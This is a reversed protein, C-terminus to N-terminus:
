LSLNPTISLPVKIADVSDPSPFRIYSIAVRDDRDSQVDLIQAQPKEGCLVDDLLARTLRDPIDPDSLNFRQPKFKSYDRPDKVEFSGDPHIKVFRGADVLNIYLEDSAQGIPGTYAIFLIETQKTDIPWGGFNEINFLEVQLMWVPKNRTRHSHLFRLHAREYLPHDIKADVAMIDSPHKEEGLIRVDSANEFVEAVSNTPLGPQPFLDPFAGRLTALPNQNRVEGITQEQKTM